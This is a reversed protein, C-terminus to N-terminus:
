AGKTRIRQRRALAIGHALGADCREALSLSRGGFARVDRGRALQRIALHCIMLARFGDATIGLALGLVKSPSLSHPSRTRLRGILREADAGLCALDPLTEEHDDAFSVLTGILADPPGAPGLPRAGLVGGLAQWTFEEFAVTLSREREIRAQYEVWGPM